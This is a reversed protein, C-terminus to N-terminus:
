LRHISEEQRMNRCSRTHTVCRLELESLIERGDDMQLVRGLGRDAPM